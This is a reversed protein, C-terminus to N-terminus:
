KKVGRLNEEPTNFNTCDCVQCVIVDEEPAPPQTWELKHESNRHECKPCTLPKTM